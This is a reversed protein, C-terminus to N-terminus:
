WGFNSNAGQMRYQGQSGTRYHNSGRQPGSGSNSHYDDHVGDHFGAAGRSLNQGGYGYSDRGWATQRDNMNYGYSHQRRYQDQYTSAGNYGSSYHDGNFRQPAVYGGNWQSLATGYNGQPRYNGQPAYYGQPGNGQHNVGYGGSMQSYGGSQCGQGQRGPSRHDASASSASLPLLVVCMLTKFDSMAKTEKVVITQSRRKALRVAKAM